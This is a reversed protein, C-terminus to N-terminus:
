NINLKVSGKGEVNMKTNNGLKVLHRFEGDFDSFMKKDGCMHNSCGSDVFWAEARSVGNAEAQAMLVLEEEHSLEVASGKAYSETVHSM